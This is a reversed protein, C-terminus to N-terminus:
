LNNVITSKIEKKYKEKKKDREERTLDDLPGYVSIYEETPSVTSNAFVKSVEQFTKRPGEDTRVM